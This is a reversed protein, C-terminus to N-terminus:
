AKAEDHERPRHEQCYWRGLQGARLRV